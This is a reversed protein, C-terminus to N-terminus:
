DDDKERKNFVYYVGVQFALTSNYRYDKVRM